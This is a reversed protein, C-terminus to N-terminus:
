RSPAMRNGHMLRIRFCGTNKQCGATIWVGTDCSGAAIAEPPCPLSKGQLWSSDAAGATHILIRGARPMFNLLAM